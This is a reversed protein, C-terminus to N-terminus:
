LTSHQHCRTEDCTNLLLFFLCASKLEVAVSTSPMMPLATRIMEPANMRVVRHLKPVHAYIVHEFYSICICVALLTERVNAAANATVPMMAPTNRSTSIAMTFTYVLSM